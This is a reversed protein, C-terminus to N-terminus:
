PIYQTNIAPDETGPGDESHLTLALVLTIIWLCSLFNLDSTPKKKEIVTVTLLVM